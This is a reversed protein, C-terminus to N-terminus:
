TSLFIYIYIYIYIYLSLSLSLSLPSLSVNCSTSPPVYVHCAAALRAARSINLNVNMFAAEHLAECLCPLGLQAAALVGECCSDDPQDAESGASVYGLCDMMGFTVTSCDVPKPPAAAAAAAGAPNFIVSSFVAWAMVCAFNAM